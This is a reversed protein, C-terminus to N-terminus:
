ETAGLVHVAMLILFLVFGVTDSEKLHSPEKESTTVSTWCRSGYRSTIWGAAVCLLMYVM